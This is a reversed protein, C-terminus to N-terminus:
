VVLPAPTDHNLTNATAHTTRPTHLLAATYTLPHTVCRQCHPAAHTACACTYTHYAAANCMSTHQAQASCRLLPPAPLAPVPVVLLLLLVAVLYTAITTATDTPSHATSCSHMYAPLHCLTPLASSCTNGCACTYTHYAAANCMSTNQAQASCRLLPPAPLAPVPVVPFLLLAVVLYTASQLIITTHTPRPTHLAPHTCCLLQAPIRTPSSANASCLQMHQLMRVYTYM